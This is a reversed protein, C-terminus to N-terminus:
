LRDYRQPSHLPGRNKKELHDTSDGLESIEQHISSTIMTARLDQLIQKLYDKTIHDDETSRQSLIPEMSDEGDQSLVGADAGDQAQKQRDKKSSRLLDTIKTQKSPSM